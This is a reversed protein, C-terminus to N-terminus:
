NFLQNCIDFPIGVIVNDDDVGGYKRSDPCGFSISMRNQIHTSAVVSGCISLFPYPKIIPLTNTKAIYHVMLDMAYKPRMQLIFMDPCIIKEMDNPMGLYINNVPKDFAPIDHLAKKITEKSAQSENSIHSVLEEESKTLGFSRRSGKCSLFNSNLFVPKNFSFNVAECFRLRISSTNIILAFDDVVPEICNLKIGTCKNGYIKKLDAIM